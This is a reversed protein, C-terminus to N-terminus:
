PLTNSEPRPLPDRLGGECRPSLLSKSGLPFISPIFPNGKVVQYDDGDPEDVTHTPDRGLEM